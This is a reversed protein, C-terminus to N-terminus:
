EDQEGIDIITEDVVSNERYTVDFTLIRGRRVYEYIVHLWNSLRHLVLTIGLWKIYDPLLNFHELNYMDLTLLAVAGAIWVSTCYGCNILKFLFLKIRYVLSNPDMGEKVLLLARVKSFIESDVVLETAAETVIVALLLCIMFIMM